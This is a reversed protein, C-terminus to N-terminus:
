SRRRVLRGVVGEAKALTTAARQHAGLHRWTQSRLRPALGRQNPRYAVLHSRGHFLHYRLLGHRAAHDLLAPVDLPKHVHTDDPDPELFNVVIIAGLSELRALFDLPQEVHEIVDFCYVLDHDGPLVREIDHVPANKGRRALRWRLFATSPNDYDAFSVEFGEELLRLGDAGIGCGFDLLKSGPAALQRILQRYPAKTGSMAFVTLDYLYATSTKYFTEEDPASAEDVEVERVHNLFRAHDYAGGLYDKLESLDRDRDWAELFPAALRQYQHRDARAQVIRESAGAPIHPLRGAIQVWAASVPPMRAVALIRDRFFPDFWPHKDAMMREGVAIGEFRRLVSSWDYGHLHHTVAHADYRLVMGHEALRWGLDLDEYYYTFDPDFGNAADFLSRKLSVNCSYFRGFRADTAGASGEADLAEYDFQSASRDLWENAPLHAVEEHWRVRGLVAVEASPERRHREVHRAILDRAPVMDAGLFLLLPRSTSRVGLNRAAGPGSQATQLVRVGARGPIPEDLGDVVVVTEFGQLTQAELADLTRDLVDPRGRTPIIVSLELAPEVM